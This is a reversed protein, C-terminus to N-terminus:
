GDNNKFGPARRPRNKHGGARRSFHLTRPKWSGVGIEFAREATVSFFSELKDANQSHRISDSLLIMGNELDGTQWAHMFRNAAALASVYSPDTPIATQAHKTIPRAWASMAFLLLICIAKM